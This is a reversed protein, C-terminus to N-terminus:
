LNVYMDTPIGYLEKNVPDLQVWSNAGVPMNNEQRLELQLSDVDGDEADVFMKKPIPQRYYFGTAWNLKKIRSKLEPGSVEKAEKDPIRTSAPEPPAPRSATPLIETSHVPTASNTTMVASTMSPELAATM